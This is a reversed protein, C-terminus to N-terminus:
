LEGWELVYGRTTGTATTLKRLLGDDVAEEVHGLPDGAVGQDSAAIAGTLQTKSVFENGAADPSDFGYEEWLAVWDVSTVDEDDTTSNAGDLRERVHARFTDVDKDHYDKPAIQEIAMEGSDVLDSARRVLEEYGVRDREPVPTSETNEASGMAAGADIAEQAETKRDGKSM